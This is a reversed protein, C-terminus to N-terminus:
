GTIALLPRHEKGLSRNMIFPALNQPKDGGERIKRFQFLSLSIQPLNLRLFLCDKVSKWSGQGQEITVQLNDPGVPSLIVITCDAGTQRILRTMLEQQPLLSRTRIASDAATDQVAMAAPHLHVTLKARPFWM